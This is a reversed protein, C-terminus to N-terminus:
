PKKKNFMKVGARIEVALQNVEPVLPCSYKKNYVCYPNYAKNFDILLSDGEPIELDLYRGGAYTSKGNTADTFPLFLYTEFEEEGMLDLNQYVELGYVEQEIKFHAIGYVRETSKRETTTPMLFPLADPTRELFALIRFSTDPEFFDLSEFDKRFRDPLPSNEPDSFQANLEKRFMLIDTLADSQAAIVSKNDTDHYRKDDKCSSLGTLILCCGITLAKNM